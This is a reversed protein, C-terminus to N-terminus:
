PARDRASSPYRDAQNAEVDSCQHRGVRFEWVDCSRCHKAWPSHSVARGAALPFAIVNYGVAWWLNRHMKRLTAHALEIAGIVDFPDSKMLVIDASEMAVDTGFAQPKPASANHPASM